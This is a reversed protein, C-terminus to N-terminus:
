LSVPDKNELNNKIQDLSTKLVTM